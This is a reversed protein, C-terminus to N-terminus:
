ANSKEDKETAQTSDSTKDATKAPEDEEDEEFMKDVRDQFSEVKDLVVSKDIHDLDVDSGAAKAGNEIGKKAAKGTAKVQKNIKKFLVPGFLICVIALIILLEPLGLGFIRMVPGFEQHSAFHFVHYGLGRADPM